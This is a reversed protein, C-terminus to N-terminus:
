EPTVRAVVSDTWSYGTVPGAGFDVTGSLRSWLIADRPGAAAVRYAAQNNADGFSRSWRTQGARDLKAVFIDDGGASVRAADGFDVTGQFGGTILANGAADLSVDYGWDAGPGGIRRSWRHHGAGDLSMVFVDLNQSTLPGGGFDVTDTFAGTAVLNGTADAALRWASMREHPGFSKAWLPEGRRDLKLVYANYGDDTVLPTGNWSVAGMFGGSVFVNGRGDVALSGLTSTGVDYETHWETRGRSDLRAVFQDSSGEAAVPGGGFDIVDNFYGTVFVDGRPGVALAGIQQQGGDGFCRSWVHEGASSLKAVFARPNGPQGPCPLAGGGFDLGGWFDGTIVLNGAADVEIASPQQYFDGFRKSWLLQGRPDFRAVVIDGSSIGVLAAHGDPQVALGTIGDIGGFPTSWARSGALESTQQSPTERTADAEPAEAAAGGCGTMAAALLVASGLFRSTM